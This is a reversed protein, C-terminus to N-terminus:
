QGDEPEWEYTKVKVGVVGATQPSRIYEVKEYDPPIMGANEVAKLIISLVMDSPVPQHWQELELKIEKLMSSRKM